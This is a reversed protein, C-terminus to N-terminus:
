PTLILAAGAATPSTPHGHVRKKWETNLAFHIAMTERMVRLTLPHDSGVDTREDPDEQIPISAIRNWTMAFLFQQKVGKAKFAKPRAAIREAATADRRWRQPM